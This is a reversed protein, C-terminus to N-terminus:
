EAAEVFRYTARIRNVDYGSPRLIVPQMVGYRRETRLDRLLAQGPVLELCGNFDITGVSRRDPVFVEIRGRRQDIKTIVGHLNESQRLSWRMHEMIRMVNGLQDAESELETLRGALEDLNEDLQKGSEFATMARHAILDAYRRLPSTFHLYSDFGLSCHESPNATYVARPLVARVSAKFSDEFETGRLAELAHGIRRALPVQLCIDQFGFQEFVAQLDAAQQETPLAQARYIAAVGNEKFHQAVRRNAFIMLESVILDGLSRDARWNELEFSGTERRALNLAQALEFLKRMHTAHDSPMAGELIPAVQSSEYRCRSKIITRESWFDRLSGDADLDFVLTRALREEGPHLSGVGFTIQEPLMPRVAWIGYASFGLKRAARDESTGPLVYASVDSIHVFVRAGGPREEVSFADDLDQTRAKSDISFANHDTYNLRAGNERGAIAVYRLRRPAVAGLRCLAGDFGSANRVIDNNVESELFHRGLKRTRARMDLMVQVGLRQGLEKLAQDLREYVEKGCTLSVVVSGHEPSIKISKIGGYRLLVAEISERVIRSAEKTLPRENSFLGEPLAAGAATDAATLSLRPASGPHGGSFNNADQLPLRHQFM